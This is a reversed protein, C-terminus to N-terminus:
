APGVEVRGGPMDKIAYGMDRLRDRIADSRAFDKASKADRREALLTEVEDSPSAGPLYVAIGTDQRALPKLSAIGLVADIAAFLEADGTTPQSRANIWANIAGIAGAANLDDSMATVLADRGSLDAPGAPGAKARTQFQRWREVTRASDKLGQLSFDANARYHTKILELRIAAPDHGKAMLERPTFFTGKSKSMKQGDVMLFRTHFWHRAFHPAGTFACSQAIECEHHPFINDEGGSHLDITAGAAGALGGPALRELAMATCEIHWGPYGPGWGATAPHDPAPWKMKHAADEKWLLFDAPHRKERQAADHVRGGAGGRIQDLTNGSLRGYDEFRRVDFYVARAGPPGATYAAGDDLLRAIVRKMGDVHDSANPMLTPDDRADEAVRLGLARADEVFRARFFAAVARPDDPDVAADTPLKGTKKAERIRAAAAVMKDAGGGDARNDETMHGVDTVNMVQVVTRPGAHDKGDPGKLTCLPSEIWRRLLDAALFARFNGIHADDYVTPGCTYFTVRAPDAPTFPEVRKTMTNYLRFYM